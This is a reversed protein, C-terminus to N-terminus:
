PDRESVRHAAQTLDEVPLLTRKTLTLALVVAVLIIAGTVTWVRRQLATIKQAATTPFTMVVFGPADGSPSVPGRIEITHHTRDFEHQYGDPPTATTVVAASTDPHFAYVLDGADDYLLM